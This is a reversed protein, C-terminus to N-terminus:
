AEETRRITGDGELLFSIRECINTCHDGIRELNHAIWLWYTMRQLIHTDQQLAPIAHIDTLMKMVDNLVMHYRVDVVDDEQWIARAAPVDSQEFAHLAEQLLRHADQGLAVIGSVISAETLMRDSTSRREGETLVSSDVRAQSMSAHRLPAMRLLLKAIGEANDGIRELDRAISPASSLFRLDGGALRQQLALSQFALREVESCMDDIRTDSAVVLRCLTQDSSQLAQLAQELATEVLTGQRIIKTRVEHLHTDVTIGTV